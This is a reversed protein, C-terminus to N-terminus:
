DMPLPRIEIVSSYSTNQRLLSVIVEAVRLPPLLETPNDQPFSERRMSTATRCPAVVNVVLDPREIALAQSFNVLAAKSAAYISTEARGRYYSSSAVNIIHGGQALQAYKCAYVAGRFNIDIQADISEVSLDCFLARELLGACNILGDLTGIKAFCSAITEPHRFNLPEEESSPSLLLANAGEKRLLRAVEQGIEGTGGTIAFRKNKLSHDKQHSPEITEQHLLQEAIYLDLPTTIKMNRQDGRVISIPVGLEQVLRCDDSVNEMNRGLAALHARKILDFHFTQPTQGRLFDARNPISIIQLGTPAYVLTDTSPICTNAAGERRATAINEQLIRETVFPRVVDHIVVIETEEPCALVGLRSSEQRTAGGNIIRCAPKDAEVEERWRHPIVLLIEAFLQSQIFIELTHLYIKKGALLHFQKPKSTDFREGVGGMLLIARINEDM